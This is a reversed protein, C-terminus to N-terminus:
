RLALMKYSEIFRLWRIRFLIGITKLKVGIDNLKPSRLITVAQVVSALLVLWARSAWLLRGFPKEKALLYSERVIRRWKRCLDDWDRRAPHSVRVDSAYTWRLGLAVARQGWDKDESVGVRFAGVAVFVARPIFVNATVSFGVEEIYRRNNFAFVLEFAEVPTLNRTDSTEVDIRGGVMDSSTLAALGRELWDSAPRCDSDIFAL